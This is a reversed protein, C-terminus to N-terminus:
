TRQALAHEDLLYQRVRGPLRTTDAETLMYIPLVREPHIVFEYFAQLDDATNLYWPRGDLHRLTSLVFRSALTQVIGPRTFHIAANCLPPSTCFLRVGLNHDEHAQRRLAVETTWMREPVARRDGHPADPHTFRLSWLGESPVTACEVQRGPVGCEFDKGEWADQPLEDACHRGRLWGIVSKIAHTWADDVTQGEKPGLKAALQYTTRIVPRKPHSPANGVQTGARQVTGSVNM